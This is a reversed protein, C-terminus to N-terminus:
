VELDAQKLNLSLLDALQCLLSLKISDLIFNLHRDDSCLGTPFNAELVSTFFEGIAVLKPWKLWQESNKNCARAIKCGRDYKLPCASKGTPSKRFGDKLM